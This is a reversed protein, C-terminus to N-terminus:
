RGGRVIENCQSQLHLSCHCPSCCKWLSERWELPPLAPPCSAGVTGSPTPSSPCESPISAQMGLSSFSQYCIWARPLFRLQCISCYLCLHPEKVPLTGVADWASSHCVCKGEVYKICSFRTDRSHLWVLGCLPVVPRHVRITTVSNKLLWYFERSVCVANRALASYEDPGVFGLVQRWTEAPIMLSLTPQTPPMTFPDIRNVHCFPFMFRLWCFRCVEFDRDFFPHLLPLFSSHFHRCRKM